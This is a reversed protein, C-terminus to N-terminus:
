IIIINPRINILLVTTPPTLHSSFGREELKKRDKEERKGRMVM